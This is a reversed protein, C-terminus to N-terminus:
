IQSHKGLDKSYSSRNFKSYFLWVVYLKSRHAYMNELGTSTKKREDKKLLLSIMLTM